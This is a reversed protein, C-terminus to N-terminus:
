RKELAGPLQLWSRIRDHIKRHVEAAIFDSKLIAGQLEKKVTGNRTACVAHQRTM